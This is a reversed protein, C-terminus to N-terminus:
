KSEAVKKFVITKKLLPGETLEHNKYKNTNILFRSESFWQAKWRTGDESVPGAFIDTSRGEILITPGMPVRFYGLVIEVTLERDEPSYHVLWDGPTYVTKSGDKMPTITNHGPRLVTWGVPTTASSISGDPEFIIELWENEAWWKGVLFPPFQDNGDVIVEIGGAPTGASQCGLIGSLIVACGTLIVLQRM